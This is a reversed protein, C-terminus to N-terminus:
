CTALQRQPLGCLVCPMIVRARCTPCRSYVREASLQLHHQGSAILYVTTRGLRLRTAVDSQSVGAQLLEEAERVQQPSIKRGRRM